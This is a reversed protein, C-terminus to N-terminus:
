HSAGGQAVEGWHEEWDAPLEHVIGQHCHICSQNASAAEAHMYSAVDDQRDADMADFAHCTRCYQSDNELYEAWVAAALEARHAEYKEATSIKGMLEPIVDLSAEMKRWVMHFWEHPLHCDACGARVGSGNNFHSSAEYEPRILTEHSHCTYCFENTSTKHLTWNMSGLAVAGIGFALFGGV